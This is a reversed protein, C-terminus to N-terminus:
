AAAKEGEREDPKQQQCQCPLRVAILTGKGVISRIKLSGGHLKALSKAIALGLGTGKHDKTFQDQVQEFPQGLRRLADESIGCGNDEVVIIVSCNLRKATVEIRGGEPTFKVANSLLNLLIQKVARRDAEVELGDPMKYDVSIRAEDAQVQVIRLTEELLSHVEVTEPTLIMRGAEIKSMDLIDNIVGLLFSGSGHIDNAYEQYKDSGLPGFMGSRMIDSFGIIANLPTRLEHSINALFDSKAENAANARAKEEKLTDAFEVLKQAQRELEQKTNRLDSITSMHRRESDVLKEENRKIQTIDTGLSVFGGDRTRKENIQLWRGDQIQAEFIQADRDQAVDTSVQARIRPKRSVKQIEDYSTGSVIATDPLDYLQQYKSNCLVLRKGADWLVFAESINEIADRLRIDADRTKQKLAEQESIDVAIGILHPHTARYYVLEARLRVCVWGGSAHMMRFRHDIQKTDSYFVNNALSLLDGDEVHLLNKLDGFGMVGEGSKIGLMEFMSRSWIIRGRALDWDWMGCHGRALATDFRTNTETYLSEAARSRAGQAFYAYLVVFIVLSMALFLALNLRASRYWAKYIQGTDWTFLLKAKTQGRDGVITEIAFVNTSQDLYTQYVRGTEGTIKTGILREEYVGELRLSDPIHSAVRGNLDLLFVSLGPRLLHTPVASELLTHAVTPKKLSKSLDSRENLRNSALQSLTVLHLKASDELAIARDMLAATRATAIMILLGIILAPILRRLLTEPGSFLRTPRSVTSAEATDPSIWFQGFVARTVRSFPTLFFEYSSARTNTAGLPRM